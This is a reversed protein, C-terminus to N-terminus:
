RGPAAVGTAWTVLRLRQEVRHRHRQGLCDDSSGNEVLPTRVFALTAYM